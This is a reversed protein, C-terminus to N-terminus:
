INFEQKLTELNPILTLITKCLNDYFILENTEQVGWLKLLRKECSLIYEGNGNIWFGSEFSFDYITFCIYITIGDNIIEDSYDIISFDMNLEM